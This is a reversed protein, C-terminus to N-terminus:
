CRHKLMHIYGYLLRFIVYKYTNQNINKVGFCLKENQVHGIDIINYIIQDNFAVTKQVPIIFM